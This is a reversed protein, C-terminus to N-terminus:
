RPTTGPFLCRPTRWKAAKKRALASFHGLDGNRIRFHSFIPSCHACLCSQLIQAYVPILLAYIRRNQASSTAYNVDMLSILSTSLFHSQYTLRVSDLYNFSPKSKPTQVLPPNLSINVHNHSSWRRHFSPWFVSDPLNIENRRNEERESDWSLRREFIFCLEQSREDGEGERKQCILRKASLEVKHM